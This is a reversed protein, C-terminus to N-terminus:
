SKTLVIDINQLHGRRDDFGVLSIDNPVKVGHRCLSRWIGYAIEDNGAVIATPRSTQSLMAPVSDQGFDM